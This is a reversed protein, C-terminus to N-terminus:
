ASSVRELIDGYNVDQLTGDELLVYESMYKSKLIGGAETPTYEYFYVDLFEKTERDYITCVCIGDDRFEYTILQLGELPTEVWIGDVEEFIVEDDLTTKMKGDEITYSDVYRIFIQNEAYEEWQLNYAYSKEGDQHLTEVGTGDENFVYTYYFMPEEGEPLVETWVGGIKEEGEALSYTYQYDDTMTKGDESITFSCFMEYHYTDGTKKWLLPFINDGEVDSYSYILEGTGDEEFTVQYSLTYGDFQIPETTQWSGVIPDATTVCGATLIVAATLLLLGAIKKM